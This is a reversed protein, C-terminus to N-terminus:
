LGRKWAVYLITATGLAVGAGLMSMWLPMLSGLNHGWPIASLACVVTLMAFFLWGPLFPWWPSEPPMTNTPLRPPAPLRPPGAWGHAVRQACYEDFNVQSLSYTEAWGCQGCRRCIWAFRGSVNTQGSYITDHECRKM